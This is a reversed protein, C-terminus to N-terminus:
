DRNSGGGNHSGITGLLVNNVKYEPFNHHIELGSGYSIREFGTAIPNHTKVRMSSEENSIYNKSFRKANNQNEGGSSMSSTITAFIQAGGNRFRSSNQLPRTGGPTM